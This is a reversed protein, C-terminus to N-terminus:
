ADQESLDEIPRTHEEPDEVYYATRLWDPDDSNRVAVLIPHEPPADEEAGARECLNLYADRLDRETFRAVSGDRQPIEYLNGEAARRLRRIQDRLGM